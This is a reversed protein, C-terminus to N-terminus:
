KMQLTSEHIKKHNRQNIGSNDVVDYANIVLEEVSGARVAVCVWALRSHGEVYVTGVCDDYECDRPKIVHTHACAIIAM